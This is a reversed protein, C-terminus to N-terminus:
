SIICGSPADVHCGIKRVNGTIVDKISYVWSNQQNYYIGYFLTGPNDYMYRVLPSGAETYRQEFDNWYNNIANRLIQCKKNAAYNYSIRLVFSYGDFLTLVEGALREKEQLNTVPDNSNENSNIHITLPRSDPREAIWVDCGSLQDTFYFPLADNLLLYSAGNEKMPLYNTPSQLRRSMATHCLNNNGSYIWMFQKDKCVGVMVRGTVRVEKVIRGVVDRESVAISSDKRLMISTTTPSDLWEKLEAPGEQSPTILILILFTSM